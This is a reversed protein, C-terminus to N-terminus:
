EGVSSDIHALQTMPSQMFGCCFYLDPKLLRNPLLRFRIQYTSRVYENLFIQDSDCILLFILNIGNTNDTYIYGLEKSDQQQLVSHDIAM